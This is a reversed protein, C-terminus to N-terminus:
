RRHKCKLGIIELKVDLELVSLGKNFEVYKTVRPQM